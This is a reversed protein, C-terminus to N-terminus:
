AVVWTCWLIHISALDRFLITRGVKASCNFSKLSVTLNLSFTGLITHVLQQINVGSKIRKTWKEEWRRLLKEVSISRLWSPLNKKNTKRIRERKKRKKEERKKIIKRKKNERNRRRKKRKVIKERWKRERKEKRICRTPTSGRQRQVSSRQANFGRTTRQVGRQANAGRQANPMCAHMYARMCTAHMCVLMYCAHCAYCAAHMGIARMSCPVTHM